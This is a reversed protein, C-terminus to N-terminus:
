RDTHEKLWAMLPRAARWVDVVKEGAVPTGLWPQLGYSRMVMLQKRRLLRERPHDRPYPKPVVKLEEGGIEFGDRELGSVIEALQSGSPEQAVAARFRELQHKEVHWWGTASFLGRASLSVYGGTCTASVETKYPSKDASFRIDRNPRFIKGPGFEEEVSALLAEMPGRVCQLYTARNAEFYAKSNDLQLGIFFRQAEEPWGQFGDNM